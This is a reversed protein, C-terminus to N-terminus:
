PQDCSRQFLRLAIARQSKPHLSAFDEADWWRHVVERVGGMPVGRFSADGKLYGTWFRRTKDSARSQLATQLRGLAASSLARSSGGM